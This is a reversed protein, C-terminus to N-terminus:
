HRRWSRLYVYFCAIDCAVPAVFTRRQAIPRMDPRRAAATWHALM